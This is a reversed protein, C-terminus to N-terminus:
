AKFCHIVIYYYYNYVIIIIIYYNTYTIMFMRFSILIRRLVNREKKLSLGLTINFYQVKTEKFKALTYTYLNNLKRLCKLVKYAKLM